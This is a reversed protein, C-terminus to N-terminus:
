VSSTELAAGSAGGGGAPGGAPGSDTLYAEDASHPSGTKNNGGRADMAAYEGMPEDYERAKKHVSLTSCLFPLFLVSWGTAGVFVWGSWGWYQHLGYAIPSDVFMYSVNLVQSSDTSSIRALLIFWSAVGALGCLVQLVTFLMATSLNFAACGGVSIVLTSLFIVCVFVGFMCFGIVFGRLCQFLYYSSGGSPYPVATFFESPKDDEIVKLPNSCGTSVPFGEVAASVIVAVSAEQLASSYSASDRLANPIMDPTLDDEAIDETLEDTATSNDSQMNVADEDPSSQLLEALKMKFAESRDTELLEEELKLNFAESAGEAGFLNESVIDSLHRTLNDVTEGEPVKTYCVTWLGAHDIGLLGQPETDIWQSTSLAVLGAVVAIFVHVINWALLGYYSKTHKGQFSLESEDIEHMM